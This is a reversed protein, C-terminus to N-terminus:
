LYWALAQLITAEILVAVYQGAEAATLLRETLDLAEEFQGQALRVRLLMLYESLRAWCSGATFDQPTLETAQLDCAVACQAAADTDGQALYFEARIAMWATYFRSTTRYPRVLESAQDLLAEARSLDGAAVAFQAQALYVGIVAESNGVQKALALANELHHTATALENRQCHAMALGLHGMGIAPVPFPTDTGETGLEVARRYREVAARLKGQLALIDGQLSLASVAVFMNEESKLAMELAEVFAAQAADLKGSNFHLLGLNLAVVCRVTFADAPLQALAQESHEIVSAIDGLLRACYARIATLHGRVEQWTIFRGEPAAYVREFDSLATEGAQVYREAAEVQGTLVFAWGCGACLYPRTAIVDDPIQRVWSLFTALRSSGVMRLGYQEALHAALAFDPIVLAHRIAEDADDAKEFWQSARRHLDPLREPHERRLRYRLLDAFLHHYRYWERKNDLPVLFLSDADLQELIAQSTNPFKLDSVMANCLPASLRNLIATHLLFSQIDDPQHHLVEELLYDMVHRDDGAFAAIFANVDEHDQLSLAALQLGAIWGETRTELAAVAEPSLSLGMTRSLFAAAEEVTFRLKRERIETMQGRARLRPLPLPPDERTAIVMHMISPQHELLFQVAHHISAAHILHYDDLVLTTRVAVAAVANVLSTVVAEIWEVEAGSLLPTTPLQPSQLLGQTSQGIAEDVRQLAGVLYALLRVPDNDGEDLSLWAVPMESRSVWESLLTTKGFGAPASVLTLKRHLGANLREILRPRPVLNPRPPPVYLKTTLLPTAM